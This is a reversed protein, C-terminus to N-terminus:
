QSHDIQLISFRSDLLKHTNALAQFKKPPPEPNQHPKGNIKPINKHM